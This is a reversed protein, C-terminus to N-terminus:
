YESTLSEIVGNLVDIMEESNYIESEVIDGDVVTIVHEDDKLNLMLLIKDM